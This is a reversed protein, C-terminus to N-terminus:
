PNTIKSRTAFPEYTDSELAIYADLIGATYNPGAVTYLVGTYEKWDVSDPIAIDLLKGEVLNATVVTIPAIIDQQNVSLANDDATALHITLSTGTVFTESINVVFKKKRGNGFPVGPNDSIDARQVIKQSLTTATIAQDDSFENFADLITM